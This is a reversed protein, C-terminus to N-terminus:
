LFFFWFVALVRALDVVRLFLPGLDGTFAEVLAVPLAAALVALFARVRLDGGAILGSGGRVASSIPM